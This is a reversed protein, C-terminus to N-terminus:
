NQHITLNELILNKNELIAGYLKAQKNIEVVYYRFKIIM